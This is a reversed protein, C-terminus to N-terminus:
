TKLGKREKNMLQIDSDHVDSSAEGSHKGYIETIQDDHVYKFHANTASRSPLHSSGM